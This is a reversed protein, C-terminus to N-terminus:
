DININCFITNASASNIATYNDRQPVGNICINHRKSMWIALVIWVAELLLILILQAVSLKNMNKIDFISYWDSVYFTWWMECQTAM